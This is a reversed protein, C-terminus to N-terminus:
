APVASSSGRGSRRPWVTLSGPREFRSPSVPSKRLCPNGPSAWTALCAPGCRCRREPTWASRGRRGSAECRPKGSLVTMENFTTAQRENGCPMLCSTKPRRTADPIAAQSCAEWDGGPELPPPEIPADDLVPPDVAPADEAPAVDAADLEPPSIEVPAVEVPPVDPPVVEAAVEVPPVEVPPVVPPEVM